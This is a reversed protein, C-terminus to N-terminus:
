VISVHGQDLQLGNTTGSGNESCPASTFVVRLVVTPEPEASEVPQPKGGSSLTRATHVQVYKSTEEICESSPLLCQNFSVVALDDSAFVRFVRSM